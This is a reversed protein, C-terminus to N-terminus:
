RYSQYNEDERSIVPTINTSCKIGKKRLNAFMEKPNPFKETDITFTQYRHQIDVDIHMGDLPIKYERHKDVAWEVIERRDYGYCGQHYGLIYRPKLNSRGVVSTYNSVLSSTNCGIFYFFDMDGMRTGLMYRSSNSYGLDILM